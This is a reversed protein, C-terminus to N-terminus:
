GSSKKGPDAAYFWDCSDDVVQTKEHTQVTALVNGAYMPRVFTDPSVIEIVDSIMSVDLLAAVRPLINKGMTTAAMLIYDYQDAMEKILLSFNEALTHAYTQSQVAIVKKIVSFQRADALVQESFSGALLLDTEGGITQRQLRIHMSLKLFDM